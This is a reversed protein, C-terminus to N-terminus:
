IETIKHRKAEKARAELLIALDTDGREAAEAAADKAEKASYDAVVRGDHRICVVLIGGRREEVGTTRAPPRMLGLHALRRIAQARSPEDPQEKRWEDIRQLLEPEVRMEFRDTKPPM